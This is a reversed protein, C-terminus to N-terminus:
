GEVREPSKAWWPGPDIPRGDKRFEVYLVPDQKKDSGGSTKGAAGMVAVPEGALVFQGVSVDIRDMGALLIHYGGGANIILLQGYTRFEDAFAVWGDSPAVIQANERSEISIGKATDGSDTRGGFRRIERGSIPRAIKGRSDAFAIAPKLRGPNVFAVKETEAPKIEVLQGDRKAKEAALRERERKAALEAEYAALGAQALEKDMRQVLEGLYTVTKAHQAAAVRVSELKQRRATELEKKEAILGSIEGQAAILKDNESKLNDRQKRIGEALEVLEHLEATLTEAQSTLEPFVSAMLMASRVMKLADDRRTVLAPPPQRGMRQMAGLMKALSARREEISTRVGAEQKSLAALRDEILSLRAESEQVRRATEILRGNLTAREKALTEVEGSLAKERERAAELEQQSRLLKQQSEEREQKGQEIKERNERLKQENKELAESTPKGPAADQAPLASPLVGSAAVALALFLAVRLGAWCELLRKSLSM